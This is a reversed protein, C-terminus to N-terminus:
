AADHAAVALRSTESLAVAEEGCAVEILPRLTLLGHEDCRYHLTMDDRPVYVLKRRCAPCNLTLHAM